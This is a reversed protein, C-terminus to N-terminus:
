ERGKGENGRDTVAVSKYATPQDVQRELAPTVRSAPAPAPGALLLAAPAGPM